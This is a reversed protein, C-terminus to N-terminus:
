IYSKRDLFAKRWRTVTYNGYLGGTFFPDGAVFAEAEARSDTDLIIVGGQGTEGDDTLLGGSAIVRPLNAKMYDVHAPRLKLRLEASNEKDFFVIAYPM